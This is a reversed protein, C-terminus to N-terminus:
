RVESPLSCMVFAAIMMLAIRSKAPTAAALERVLMPPLSEGFISVGASEVEVPSSTCALGAGPGFVEAARAVFGLVRVIRPAGAGGAGLGAVVVAIAVVAPGAVGVIGSVVVAVPAAVGSGAASM